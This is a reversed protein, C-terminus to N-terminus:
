KIFRLKVVFYYNGHEKGGIYLDVPMMMKTKEVNFMDEKYDRDLYRLYYWSSDVFTDMTDTERKAPGKCKPCVTNLWELSENLHSIGKQSSKNNLKPLEVPLDTRPVPLAGCKECHIIPIPTGWYRQRSILWDRLKASSWYGGVQLVQAKKCVLRRKEEIEQENLLNVPSYQIRFRDCFIQDQELIGPVGLYSDSSDLFEIRDTVFIPVNENNIPNRAHIFLKKTGIELIEGELKALTSNPSIAVFKCSEIYEPTSTWLTIFDIQKDDKVLEFDFLVGNCDGIWHKQIKIIDRWDQLIPDDLGELLDKAFRTTRIFWQKLLKREM